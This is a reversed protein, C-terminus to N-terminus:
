LLYRLGRTKASIGLIRYVSYVHRKVTNTAIGLALAIEKNSKHAALYILVEQQRRTLPRRVM